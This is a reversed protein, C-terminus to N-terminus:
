SSQRAWRGKKGVTLTGKKKEASGLGQSRSASDFSPSTHLTLPLCKLCFCCWAGGYLGRDTCKDLPGGTMFAVYAMHTHILM